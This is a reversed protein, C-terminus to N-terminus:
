LIFLRRVARAGLGFMKDNWAETGKYQDSHIPSSQTNTTTTTTIELFPKESQSGQPQDKQLDKSDIVKSASSNTNDNAEMAPPPQDQGEQAM